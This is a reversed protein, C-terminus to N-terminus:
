EGTQNVTRGHLVCALRHIGVIAATEARLRTPGLSWCSIGDGILRRREEPDLGGEPGVLLRVASVGDFSPISAEGEPDALIWGRKVSGDNVREAGRLRPLWARESQKMAERIIREWRPRVTESFRRVSRSWEIPILRDVGVEVAKELLWETRPRFRLIPFGLEIKVSSEEERKKEVIVGSLEKGSAVLRVKYRHGAGDVVRCSDGARLRVVREIHRAEEPSFRVGGGKSFREPPVYFPHPDHGM